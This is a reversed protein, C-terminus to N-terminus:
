LVATECMDLLDQKMKRAGLSLKDDNELAINHWLCYFDEYFENILGDVSEGWVVM